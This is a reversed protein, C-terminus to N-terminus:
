AVLGFGRNLSGSARPFERQLLYVDVVYRSKSLAVTVVDRDNEDVTHLYEFVADIRLFKFALKM